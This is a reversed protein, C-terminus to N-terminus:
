ALWIGVFESFAELLQESISESDGAHDLPSLDRRLIPRGLPVQVLKGSLRVENDATKSISSRARRPTDVVGNLDLLAASKRDRHDCVGKFGQCFQFPLCKTRRLVRHQNDLM